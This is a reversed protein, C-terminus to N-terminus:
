EEDPNYSGLGGQRVAKENISIKGSRALSAIFSNLELGSWEKLVAQIVEEKKSQWVDEAVKEVEMLKVIYGQQEVASIVEGQKEMTVMQVVPLGQKTLEKIRSADDGKLNDISRFKGGWREAVSSMDEAKAARAAQLVLERITTQARSHYIDEAVKDKVKEYSPVVSPEVATLQVLIGKTETRTVGRDGAGKLSFLKIVAPDNNKSVMDLQKKTARKERAFEALAEPSKPLKTVAADFQQFFTQQRLMGEVESRVDELDKFSTTKLAVRQIIEFGEKTQIVPSIEKDAKLSFAVQELMPDQEGRAFFEIVGGNKATAADESVERAKDAFTDPAQMLEQRLLQARTHVISSDAPTPVKFLIRRVKVQMPSKIFQNKHRNYYRLVNLDTLEVGYKEPDFEWVVGSRHEPITYNKRNKEYWKKMEADSIEKSREKDVVKEFPITVVEYTKAAFQQLYVQKAAFAPVYVAVDVLDRVVKRALSKELYQEFDAIRVGERRLIREISSKSMEGMSALVYPPVFEPLEGVLFYPDTVKGAIYQEDMTINLDRAVQDLLADNILSQVAHAAPNREFMRPDYQMGAQEFQMRLMDLRRQTAQLRRNFDKVEIVDGNVTAFSYADSKGFFKFLVASMGMSIITAWLAIKFITHSIKKRRTHIM